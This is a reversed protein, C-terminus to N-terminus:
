VERLLNLIKESVNHKKCFIFKCGYKMELTIMTKQLTEPSFSAMKDGKKRVAIRVGNVQKYQTSKYRPIKFTKVGNINYIYDDIVLIYLKIGNDKARVLEERFRIHDQFCNQAVEMLDKKTDICISQNNLLSYDGVFLKSRVINYGKAQLELRLFEWKDANNRTDEIITTM